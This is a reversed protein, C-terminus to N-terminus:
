KLYGDNICSCGQRLDFSVPMHHVERKFLSKSRLLMRAKWPDAERVVFTSVRVSSRM